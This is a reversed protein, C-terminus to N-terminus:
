KAKDDGDFTCTKRTGVEVRGMVRLTTKENKPDKDSPQIM